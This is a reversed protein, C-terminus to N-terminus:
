EGRLESLNITRLKRIDDIGLAVMALRDFGLGWAAVPFNVSVAKLVEPRFMGAGGMEIWGLKEHKAIIEVSPETFPFYSPVFRIETFGVKKYFEDLIGLLHRFTVGYEGMIGEIQKFQIHH